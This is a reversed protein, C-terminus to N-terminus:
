RLWLLNRQCLAAGGGTEFAEARESRCSLTVTM